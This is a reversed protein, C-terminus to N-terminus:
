VHSRRPKLYQFLLLPQGVLDEGIQVHLPAKMGKRLMTTLDSIVASLDTEDNLLTDILKGISNPVVLHAAYWTHFCRVRAFDAIGGIGRENLASEMGSDNLFDQEKDLLFQRRLQIHQQHDLAMLQQLASSENIKAQVTAIWGSAELRDIALCYDPDILWYLTPFPKEDVVSAVRIVSPFGAANFGAVARLGRSGQGIARNHLRAM